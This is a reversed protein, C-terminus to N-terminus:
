SFIQIKTFTVIFTKLTYNQAYYKDMLEMDTEYFSKLTFRIDKSNLKMEVDKNM